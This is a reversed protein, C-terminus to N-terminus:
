PTFAVVPSWFSTAQTGRASRARFSYKTGRSVAVPAASSGFVGKFSGTGAKWKTWSGSGIRYDIDFKSGTETAGSAWSVTFPLGTPGSSITVPVRVVGDMGGRKTGHIECRYHFTGASFIVSYNMATVPDGSYFIRGDERVNHGMQSGPNVWNVTDGMGVRLVDPSFVKDRVGIKKLAAPAASPALLFALLAVSLLRRV